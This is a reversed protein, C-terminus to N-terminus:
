YIIPVCMRCAVLLHRRRLFGRLTGFCAHAYGPVSQRTFLCWVPLPPPCSSLRCALPSSFGQARSDFSRRVPLIRPRRPRTSAPERASKVLELGGGGHVETSRNKKGPICSTAKLFKLNNILLSRLMIRGSHQQSRQGHTPSLSGLRDPNSEIHLLSTQYGNPSQDNCNRTFHRM